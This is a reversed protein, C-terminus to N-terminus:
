PTVRVLQGPRTLDPRSYRWISRKPFAKRLAGVDAGSRAYLVVADMSPPNRVLDWKNLGLGSKTDQIVIANALMAQAALRFPEERSLVERRFGILVLPWTGLLYLLCAISALPLMARGISRDLRATVSPLASVITVTLLPYADFYYRPDYRNGGEAAFTVYALVFSPFILDYYALKRDKFKLLLCGSYAILLIPSTWLALEAMRSGIM